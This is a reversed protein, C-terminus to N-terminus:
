FKVGGGFRVTHLGALMNGAPLFQLYEYEGRLFVNGMVAFDGGIGLSLGPVYAVKAETQSQPGFTFTPIVGSLDTVVASVTVSRAIDARGVVLGLTVYPLFNGMTYGARGRLEGYQNIRFSASSTVTTLYSSGDGPTVGRTLSGSASGLVSTTNYGLEIGVIASGWQQNYGFFGGLGVGNTDQNSLVPFQSVHGSNELASTRLIFAVLPQTATALDFHGSYGSAHGGAYFGEWRIETPTEPQYTDSGRMIMDDLDAAAAVDVLCFVALCAIVGRM